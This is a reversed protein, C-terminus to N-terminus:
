DETTRHKLLLVSCPALAAVQYSISALGAGPHEPEVVHSGLVVIDAGV